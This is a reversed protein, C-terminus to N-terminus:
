SLSTPDGQQGLVRLLRRWCWLGFADIRWREAKKITWNECGCMVVPFVVGQSFPGQNAFYPRQKKLISVLNTMVKRGLLLRRKILSRDSLLLFDLVWRMLNGSYFFISLFCTQLNCLSIMASFTRLTSFICVHLNLFCLLEFYSLGLPVWM